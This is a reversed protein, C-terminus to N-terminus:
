LSEESASYSSRRAHSEFSASLRGRKAANRKKERYYVRAAVAKESKKKKEGGKKAQKSVESAASM